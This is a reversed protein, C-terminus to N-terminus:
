GTRFNDDHYTLVSGLPPSQAGIAAAPGTLVLASLFLVSLYLAVSKRM